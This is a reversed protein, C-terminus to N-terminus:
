FTGVSTVPDLLVTKKSGDPWNMTIRDYDTRSHAGKKGQKRLERSWHQPSLLRGKTNPVYYSNPLHDKHVKGDDDEIKLVATGRYVNRTSTGGFGKIVQNTEELKGEFDDIDGSIYASARNDIGVPKSDTDFVVERETKNKYAEMAM